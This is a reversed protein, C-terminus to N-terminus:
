RPECGSPLNAFAWDFLAISDEYRDESGFVSIILERGGQSAGAVITQKAKTTYGIKVGFTGPYVQLLRNGNRLQVGDEGYHYEATTAIQALLPVELYARGAIAMDLASSYLGNNDLGHPNSFHTDIMGLRRAEDNMLDIFTGVDGHGVHEALALAADNGSPLFLGYLLEIVSLNMGPEIGM